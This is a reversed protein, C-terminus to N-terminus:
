VDKERAAHVSSESVKPRSKPGVAEQNQRAATGAMM